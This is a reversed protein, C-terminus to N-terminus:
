KAIQTIQALFVMLFIIGSTSMIIILQRTDPFGFMSGSFAWIILILLSLLFGCSTEVLEANAVAFKRFVQDM